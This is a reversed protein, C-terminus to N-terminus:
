TAGARTANGEGLAQRLARLLPVAHPTDGHVCLTRLDGRAALVRAQAVAEDVSALVADAHRRDRLTGDAEYRRDAFGEAFFDLKAAAAANALEGRPPGVLALGAGHERAIDALLEALGRDANAAHYLAGHPKLSMLALGAAEALLALAAVQTRLSAALVDYPLVMTKRGFHERDPYSPHAGVRSRHRKARALTRRMSDEDGAHGGCAVHLVHAFQALEEPEDPLEGADVNIWVM